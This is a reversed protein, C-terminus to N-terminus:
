KLVFSIATFHVFNQFWVMIDALDNWAVGNSFLNIVDGPGTYGQIGDWSIHSIGRM